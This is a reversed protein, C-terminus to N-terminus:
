AMRQGCRKAEFASAKRYRETDRWDHHCEPLDHKPRASRAMGSVKKNPQKSILESIVNTDLLYNM